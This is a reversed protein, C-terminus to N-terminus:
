SLSLVNYVPLSHIFTFFISKEVHTFCPTPNAHPDADNQHWDQDPDLDPDADALFNPDPDADFRHRDVVGCRNCREQKTKQTRLHSISYV